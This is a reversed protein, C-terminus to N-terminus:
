CPRYSLTYTYTCLQLHSFLHVQIKSRYWSGIRPRMDVNMFRNESSFTFSPHNKNLGSSNNLLKLNCYNYHLALHFHSELKREDSNEILYPSSLWLDYNNELDDPAETLFFLFAPFVMWIELREFYIKLFHKIHEKEMEKIFLNIIYVNKLQNTSQLRRKFESFFNDFWHANTHLDNKVEIYAM